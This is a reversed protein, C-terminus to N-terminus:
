GPKLHAAPWVGLSKGDLDELEYSSSGLKKTVRAPLFLPGYKANYHDIANSMRMNRRYVLQGVELAKSFNRHRLEYRKQGEKHAKGLNSKVLDCIKGYLETQQVSREEPSIIEDSEGLRHDSGKLTMEYGHTTFFPTLETASHLSTNLITEIESIKEDWFRQDERVYTRIAANVTRHVREVPNAQSHYRSNLWHRVDFRRLFNRFEHSLFCTANDTIVVEPVSNRFFWQDRLIACLKVSDIKRFPVLMVWKSFLDVVSLFYQNQKRSRPLPGVFDLAIIQWPHTTLRQEGLPPALATNAAKTEKCISCKQIHERVEIVMRPWFYRQRIRSLTKDVGLHMSGDHNLRIIEAREPPAPIEKWDFRNDQVSGPMSLFKYLKGERLQFDVYETPKEVVNEMLEEYWRTAPDAELSGDPKSSQSVANHSDTQSFVKVTAVSRSLADPM